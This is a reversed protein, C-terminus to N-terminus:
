RRWRGPGVEVVENPQAMRFVKLVLATTEALTVPKKDRASVRLGPVKKVELVLAAHEHGASDVYKVLSGVKVPREPAPASKATEAERVRALDLLQQLEEATYQNPSKM